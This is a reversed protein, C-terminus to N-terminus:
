DKRKWRSPFKLSGCFPFCPSIQNLKEQFTSM